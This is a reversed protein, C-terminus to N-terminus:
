IEEKTVYLNIDWAPIGRMRRLYFGRYHPAIKQIHLPLAFMDESRHYLSVLLIPAHQKLTQLSGDLAERESGEVDYKIYDVCAGDLVQDLPLAKVESVKAPRDALTQSRNKEFSANRNGSKDFFLVEEKDWAGANVPIVRARTETEAYAVLKKYNRADPEMAWVTDINGEGRELLQRVTDGNYAGLDAVNRVTQPHIIYNWIEEEDSEADLLYSIDGTLKYSLANDFIRRSEDDSLLARAAAFKEIHEEYFPRTFLTDGFVPVDPAYLEAETRIRLINELVEPRSTGFSLLVIVNEVGFEAKIDSWTRVPMGHFLNGRAFGDSAFVGGVSIKCESLVALIKDAGNGMGYLVITKETEKLYEWLDRKCKPLM